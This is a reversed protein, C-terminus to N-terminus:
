RSEIRWAGIIFAAALLLVLWAPALPTLSVDTVTYASRDALGIWNRGAATRGEAVRRLEPLGDAVRLVAGDNLDVLPALVDATSLANEFERPASPGVPVVGRVDGDVLRYVGMIEAPLTVEWQGPAQETMEVSVMEGDPRTVVVDPTETLLTRRTILLEQQATVNGQLVEEELEPEAMLWHALRRLLEDQPGGGEFGRSWLWAHDSALMAIRGDGVRDLILLPRGDTGEMVTNGSRQALEVLRFWRGWGPTGDEAVPAPAFDELTATVPHRRGLDSITPYFGDDLVRATPDAPLVSALPTRWLSEVGAFAPGSAVLVAGGDEVYRAINELYPVPLVGRRRYRDFIILDFEDIKEMFLERTPFAILSMEYVPVGDQKSPPRLITFHVLDVSADSKLLNRWTRGGAHPEGSVLLVRLRDRVGNIEVIAGNNRDTLEGGEAEFDLELLNRGGRDIPVTFTLSEGVPIPVTTVREGDLSIALPLSRAPAPVEGLEEIMVTMEVTEGVIGFAPAAEVVLRRDWEDEQGTLLVHVPAPFDPTEPVDHAQGDTVIIAGAIRDAGASSAAEALAAMIRTGREEDAAPPDTVTLERWELPADSAAQLRDLRESMARRARELQEPRPAISQSGTQDIILYAIDALPERDEEKLSPGALAMLLVAAGLGRLFWGGLRMWAAYACLVVTAAGLALLLWGAVLPSFIVSGEIM